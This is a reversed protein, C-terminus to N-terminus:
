AAPVAQRNVVNVLPEGAAFRLIEEAIMEAGQLLTEHTAGGLHPTMVVNEHRLLPHRGDAETARVVDLAAGGLPGHDLAYMLAPTDVVAGRSGNVLLSGRCMRRLFSADVLHHTESTLPIHLAVVNSHELLTDLDVVEAPGDTNAGSPPRLALVRMGLGAFKQATRHGIRGYGVIGATLTSLRALRAGSPNWIGARVDRDLLTVGRFWSLTLAVVHDSVEEVCYDPVNTVWIGRRTAEDVAINDLGVGLRAVV